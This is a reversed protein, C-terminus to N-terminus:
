CDTHLCRNREIPIVPMYVLSDESNYSPGLHLARVDSSLPFLMISAEMLFSLMSMLM